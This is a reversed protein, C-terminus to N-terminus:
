DPISLTRFMVPEGTAPMSASSQHPKTRLELVHDCIITLAIASLLRGRLEVDCDSTTAIVTWASILSRPKDGGIFVSGNTLIMTPPYKQEWDTHCRNGKISPDM